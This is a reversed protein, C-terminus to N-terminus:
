FGKVMVSKHNYVDKYKSYRVTSSNKKINDIYHINKNIVRESQLRNLIETEQAGYITSLQNFTM